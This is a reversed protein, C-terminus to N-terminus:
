GRVGPGSAGEGGDIKAEDLARRITRLLTDPEYPKALFAAQSIAVAPDKALVDSYGSSLVIVVEPDLRYLEAAVETGGKRPMVADLLVVDIKGQHAEFVELAEVGDEALLVRYGAGELVRQVVHRVPAEDEAVLICENGGEVPDEIKTGVEAADRTAVPLYVKFTTGRGVESYVHIFGGHQKVTGFVTALGLGTGGEKTTHFPEFIKEQEEPPIGDGTDTVTLLVYRGPRAWPHTERYNGNIVVQETELFLKGGKAMADRANICLNVVVQELQGRDGLVAPLRHAEILDLAITEPILRRLLKVTDRLLENLDLPTEMIQSRRGFALLQKTLNAARQCAGLAEGLFAEREGEEPEGRALDINGMIAVMLNNFDHAVGGALQGIAELKQLRREGMEKLRETTVDIVGGILDTARGDPGLLVRGRAHIWREAGDVVVRHVVGHYHGTAMSREIHVKVQERDDPHVLALFDEYTIDDRDLPWGFLAKTVDDWILRDHAIEYRWQGMGSAELALQLQEEKLRLDREARRQPAVNNALAVIESVVGERTVPTFRISWIAGSPGALEFAVTECGRVVGNLARGIKSREPEPIFEQLRRGVVQDVSVGPRGRNVYLITGSPDLVGIMDPTHALINSLWATRPAGEGLEERM